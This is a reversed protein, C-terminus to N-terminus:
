GKKRLRLLRADILARSVPSNHALLRHANGGLMQRAMGQAAPLVDQPVVVRNLVGWEAHARAVRMELTHLNM